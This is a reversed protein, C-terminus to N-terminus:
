YGKPMHGYKAKYQARVEKKFAESETDVKSQNSVDLAHAKGLARQERAYDGLSKRPKGKGDGTLAVTLRTGWYDPAQVINDILRKFM